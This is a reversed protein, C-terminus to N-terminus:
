GNSDEEFSIEAQEGDVHAGLTSVYDEYHRQVAGSGPFLDVFEDGDQINLARFMWFCFDRPKVGVLGKRLTINCAIHDRVTNQKKTIKRGGYLIVPEWTYALRVSPKWSSFPKVWAMVRVGDPCLPLLDRLSPSHCSLAWGDPYDSGLSEILQSHDVEGDYDKHGKYYKSCGVYPPDAYAFKM